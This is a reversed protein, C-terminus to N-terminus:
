VNFHVQYCGSVTKNFQSRNDKVKENKSVKEDTRKDSMWIEKVVGVNENYREEWDEKWYETMEIM